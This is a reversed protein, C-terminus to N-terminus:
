PHLFAICHIVTCMSSHLIQVLGSSAGYGALVSTAWALLCGKQMCVDARRAHLRRTPIQIYMYAVTCTPYYATISLMHRQPLKYTINSVTM